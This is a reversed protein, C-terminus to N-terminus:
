SQAPSAAPATDGSRMYVLVAVIVTWVVLAFATFWGVPTVSVVGLIIAIWGLWSPLLRSRVIALGSALWMVALGGLFAVGSIDSQLTNLAQAASLSLHKPSDTIAILSGAALAGSVAFLVGGALFM